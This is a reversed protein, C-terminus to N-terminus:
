RAPATTPVEVADPSEYSPPLPPNATYSPPLEVGTSVVNRQLPVQSILTVPLTIVNLFFIGTDAVYYLQPYEYDTPEYAFGTPLTVVDGNEYRSVTPPWQRNQIAGDVPIPESQVEGRTTYQAPACGVALATALAAAPLMLLSTRATFPNHM